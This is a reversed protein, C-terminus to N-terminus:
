FKNFSVPEEEDTYEEDSLMENDDKSVMPLHQGLIYVPGNGEILKFTM